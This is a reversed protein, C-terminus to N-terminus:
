PCNGEYVGAPVPIVEMEVTEGNLVKEVMEATIRAMEDPQQFVTAIYSGCKDIEVKEDDEGDFGVVKVETRNAAVIADYAGLSSQASYGFVLDVEGEPYTVLADEMSSMGNERTDGIYENLKNVTIGNESMGDTFGKCRDQATESAMTVWILNVSTKGEAKLREAMWEGGVYGADYNDVGAVSNYKYGDPMSLTDMWFTPIKSKNAIDDVDAMADAWWTAAVFADIGQTLLDLSANVQTLTDLNGDAYVVEWGRKEAEEIFTDHMRVYFPFQLTPLTYGIKVPEAPAEEAPAAEEAAPAAPAAPAACASLAFAFVLAIFFWKNKLM